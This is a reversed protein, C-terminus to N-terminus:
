WNDKSKSHPHLLEHHGPETAILAFDIDVLECDSAAAGGSIARLRSPPIRVGAQAFQRSMRRAQRPTLTLPDHTARVAPLAWGGDRREAWWGTVTAGILAVVFVAAASPIVLSSLPGSDGAIAYTVVEVIFSVAVLGALVWFARNLGNAAPLRM